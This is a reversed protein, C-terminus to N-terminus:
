ADAVELRVGEGVGWRVFHWSDVRTHEPAHDPDAFNRQGLFQAPTVLPVDGRYHHHPGLVNYTSNFVEVEVRHAGAALELRPSRLSAGWACAWAGDDVRLRAAAVRAGDLVLRYAGDREVSVAKTLTVPRFSFPFGSELLDYSLESLGSTRYLEFTGSCTMQRGDYPWLRAWAGFRGALFVVPEADGYAVVRLEHSGVTCAGEPLPLWIPLGHAVPVDLARGDWWVDAVPDSLLVSCGVDSLDEVCSVPYRLSGEAEAGDAVFGGCADGAGGDDADDDDVGMGPELRLLNTAPSVIHWPGQAPEVFSAPAVERVAAPEVAEAGVELTEPMGVFSTTVKGLGSLWGEPTLVQGGAREFGMLLSAVEPSEYAEAFAVVRRYRANGVRLEGGEAHALGELRREEVLQPSVGLGAADDMLAVVADSMRTAATNSAGSGDRVSAHALEGPVFREQIARMPVVVVTEDGRRAMPAEDADRLASLLAPLVPAWTVHSPFSAPWDRMGAATLRLQDRGVLVDTVGAEGARRLCAELDAAGMGNGAGVLVECFSRGDGAQAAASSALRSVYRNHPERGPVDIGPIAMAGLEESVSGVHPVQLWPTEEGELRAALSTGHAECWERVPQYFGEVLCDALAEWYRARFARIEDSDGLFLWRLARANVGVGWDALKREVEVPWPLADSAPAKSGTRFSVGESLFAEVHAFAVPDLGALYREHVLSVLADTCASSFASMGPEERTRVEGGVLREGVRTAGELSLWRVRADPLLGSARGGCAALAHAGGDHIWLSLGLERAHLIAGSLLEFYEDDLYRDAPYGRPRWVVGDFGLSAYSDLRERLEDAEPVANVVLSAHFRM